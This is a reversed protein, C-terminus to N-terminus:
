SVGLEIYGPKSRATGLQGTFLLAAALGGVIVWNSGDSQLVVFAYPGSLSLKLAGDVSQSDLTGILTVGTQTAANKIVVKTGAGNRSASQLTLRTEGNASVIVTESSDLIQTPGLTGVLQIRHSPAAYGAVYHPTSVGGLFYNQGITVKGPPVNAAVYIGIDLNLGPGKKITNGHIVIDAPTAGDVGIARSLVAGSRGCNQIVNDVIKVNGGCDSVHICAAAGAEWLGIYGSIVNRAIILSPVASQVTQGNAVDIVAVGALSTNGDSIVNDVFTCSGIPDIFVVSAGTIVNPNTFFNGTVLSTKAAIQVASSMFTDVVNNRVVVGAATTGSANMNICNNGTHDIRCESVTWAPSDGEAYVNEDEFQTVRLRTITINSSYSAYTAKRAGASTILQTPIPTPGNAGKITLDSVTCGSCTVHSIFGYFAGTPSSTGDKTRGDFITTRDIGDGFVRVGTAGTFGLNQNSKYNGAPLYVDFGAASAASFASQIAPGDDTTGLGQANWPAARVNIVHRPATGVQGNKAVDTAAKDVASMTGRVSPTAAAIRAANGVVSIADDGTSVPGPIGQSGAVGAPGVAGVPGVSGTPGVAGQSGPTSIKVENTTSRDVLISM